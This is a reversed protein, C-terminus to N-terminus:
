QDIGTVGTFAPDLQSWFRYLVIYQNFTGQGEYFIQKRERLPGARKTAISGFLLVRIAECAERRDVAIPKGQEMKELISDGPRPSSPVVRGEASRPSAPASRAVVRPEAIGQQMQAM